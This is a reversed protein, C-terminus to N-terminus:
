DLAVAAPWVSIPGALLRSLCIAEHRAYAMQPLPLSSIRNAIEAPAKQDPNRSLPRTAFQSSINRGESKPM